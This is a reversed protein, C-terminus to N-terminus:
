LSYMSLDICRHLYMTGSLEWRQVEQHGITSTARPCYLLSSAGWFTGPCNDDDNDDGNDDGNDDDNTDDNEDENTDNDFGAFGM